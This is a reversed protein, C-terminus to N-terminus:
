NDLNDLYFLFAVKIFYYFRNYPLEWTVRDEPTTSLREM